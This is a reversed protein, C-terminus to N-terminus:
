RGGRIIFRRRCCWSAPNPPKVDINIRHASWNNSLIRAGTQRTVSVRPKDEPSLFVTTRPNFEASTLAALSNTEDLFVPRQGVTAMPLFTSRATWEFINTACTVQSVSLFDALAACYSNTTPYLQYCVEREKRLELAFFGDIKPLDDLLNANCYMGLRQILYGNFANTLIKTRFGLIAELSLMARSEGPAPRPKLRALTLLGPQFVTREVSPNQRPAHTAVDLWTLFVLGLVLAWKLRAEIACGAVFWLGLIAVLFAARTLGSFATVSWVEDKGPCIYAFGVLLGIAVVLAIGLMLGARWFRKKLELPAEIYARVAFAALLPVLFVPLMVFKIPFRMLGLPPFFKLLVTYVRGADGLALVLCVGTIIALLRVRKERVRMAAILALVAMGIGLYYSSTIRQGTQFYVGASSQVTRFLPVFFEGLGVVADGM